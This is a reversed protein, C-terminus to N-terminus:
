KCQKLVSYGDSAHVVMAFDFLDVAVSCELDEIPFEPRAPDAFVQGWKSRYVRDVFHHIPRSSNQLLDAIYEACALDEDGYGPRSSGSLVFTSSEVGSNRIYNATARACVFSTALVQAAGSCSVVCQTGASTRQVIRRSSLNVDAIAAPSNGLDFGAPRMGDVEGLLLATSDHQRIAFAQEVTSVLVIERANAAFAYAATTFARLVDVVIVLGKLHPCMEPTAFAVSM